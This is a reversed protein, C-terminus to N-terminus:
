VTLLYAVSCIFDTKGEYGGYVIESCEVVIETKHIIVATSEYVELRWGAIQSGIGVSDPIVKARM